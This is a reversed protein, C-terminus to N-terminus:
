VEILISEKEVSQKLSGSISDSTLLDVKVEFLDELLFTLNIYNDFNKMGSKFTVLFDIDSKPNADKRAVSGFIHIAQVGLSDLERKHNRLSEQIITKDLSDVAIM